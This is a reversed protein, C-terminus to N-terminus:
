TVRRHGRGRLEFPLPEPHRPSSDDLPQFLLLRNTPIVAPRRTPICGAVPALDKISTTPACPNSGQVRQNLTLMFSENILGM